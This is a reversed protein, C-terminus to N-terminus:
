VDDWGTLGTAVVYSTVTTEFFNSKQGDDNEATQKEMYHYPNKTKGPYLAKLGIAELNKNALYQTFDSSTQPSMGIIKEGYVYTAWAIEEKVAEEFMEYVVAQWDFDFKNEAIITLLLNRFVETHTAEDRNIYRVNDACGMMLNRYELNYFFTFGNYFYISELIYNAVVARFFNQFSPNDIFAQFIGAIHKNRTLLLDNDRWLYYVERRKQAPIVTEFMYAYAQSHILEQYAQIAGLGTVEPATVYNFINPINNTQLSDLFTLFSVTHDFAHQDAKSLQGYQIKDKSLDIKEPFWTNGIMERFADKAWSYKTDNLNLLNTSNGGIISRAEISDDGDPNFLTKKNIEMKLDGILRNM